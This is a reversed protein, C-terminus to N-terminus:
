CLTRTPSLSLCERDAFHVTYDGTPKLVFRYQANLYGTNTPILLLLLPQPDTPCSLEGTIRLWRM